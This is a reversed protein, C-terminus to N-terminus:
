PGSSSLPDKSTDTVYLLTHVCDGTVCMHKRCGHSHKQKAEPVPTSGGGQPVLEATLPLPLRPSLSFRGLARSRSKKSSGTEEKDWGLAEPLKASSCYWAHGERLAQPVRRAKMKNGFDFVSGGLVSSCVGTHEGM